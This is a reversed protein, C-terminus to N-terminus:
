KKVYAAAQEVARKFLAITKMNRIVNADPRTCNAAADAWDKKDIAANLRPWKRRLGFTGLNFAMDLM